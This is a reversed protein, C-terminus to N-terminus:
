GLGQYDSVSQRCTAYGVSRTLQCNLRFTSSHLGRTPADDVASHVRRRPVVGEVKLFQPTLDSFGRKKMSLFITKIALRFMSNMFPRNSPNYSLYTSVGTPRSPRGFSKILTM